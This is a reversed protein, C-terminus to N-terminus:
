DALARITAPETYPKPAPKHIALTRNIGDIFGALYIARAAPGPVFCEAPVTARIAADIEDDTVRMDDVDKETM